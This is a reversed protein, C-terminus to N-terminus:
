HPHLLRTKHWDATRAAPATFVKEALDPRALIAPVQDHMARPGLIHARDIHIPFPFLSM